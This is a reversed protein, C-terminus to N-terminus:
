NLLDKKKKKHIKLKGLGTETGGEGDVERVLVGAGLVGADSSSSDSLSPSVSTSFFVTSSIRLKCKFLYIINM